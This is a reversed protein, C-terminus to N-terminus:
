RLVLPLTLAIVFLSQSSHVAIGMWASRFRKTPYALFVADLLAVPIVWPVHLHYVAFLVGNAVWDGRGFVGSMRPLLFARFLLEEGLMTNFAAMVVTLAFWGWNDQFFRQGVDGSLLAGLDRSDPSPLTPVLLQVTAFGVILPVLILWVRGGTQGSSPSRPPGLWLAERVVSWRLSRQERGVLIAVLVGQWVLGVTLAVFLAKALPVGGEGGLRGALAPAVLWALVAMPLAAASWVAVIQRLELQRIGGAGGGARAVHHQEPGSEVLAGEVPVRGALHDDRVPAAQGRQTWHALRVAWSASTARVEGQQDGM